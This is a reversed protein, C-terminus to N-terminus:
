FVNITGVQNVTVQNSDNANSAITLTATADPNGTLQQFVIEDQTITLSSPIQFKQDFAVDRTAFSAGKFMTIQTSSINVGWQSAEKGALTNLQATKLSSSLENTKNKLFNRVLFNSALPVTTGGILAILAIVLILEVVTIGRSREQSLGKTKM